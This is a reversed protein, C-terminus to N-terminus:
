YLIWRCHLLGQNSEQTPFIQQLVSLSGVGTNKPKGQPEAPLSDAHLTPSRPKIGPNPLNGQLLSLSDVGTNQGPSDWPSYDVLSRQGHFEEPLEPLEEGGKSYPAMGKQKSSGAIFLGEEAGFVICLKDPKQADPGPVQTQCCCPCSPKAMEAWDCAVSERSSGLGNTM